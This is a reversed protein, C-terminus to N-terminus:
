RLSGGVTGPRCSHSSPDRSPSSRPTPGPARDRHRRVATGVAGPLDDPEREDPVADGRALDGRGDGQRVCVSVPRRRRPVGPRGADGAARPQRTHRPAGAARRRAAAPPQPHHPQGRRVAGEVRDRGREPRDRGSVCVAAQDASHSRAPQARGAGRGAPQRASLDHGRRRAPLQQQVRRGRGSRRGHEPVGPEHGHGGVDARLAPRDAPRVGRRGLRRRREHDAADVHGAPKAAHVATGAPVAADRGGGARPDGADPRERRGALGGTRQVAAAEDPVAADSVAGRGARGDGHGGSAGRDAVGARGDGPRVRVHLGAEVGGGGRRDRARGGHDDGPEAGLQLRLGVGRPAGGPLAVAARGHARGPVGAVRRVPEGGAPPRGLLRREAHEDARLAPGARRRAVDAGVRQRPGHLAVVRGGVHRGRLRREVAPHHLVGLAARGHARRLGAGDGAPRLPAAGPRSGPQGRDGSGEFVVPALTQDFDFRSVPRGHGETLLVSGDEGFGADLEGSAADIAYLRDRSNLFIRAEDGDRWYAIGRHKFGGPGAGRPGGEYAGPDFTWLEAGTEADLAAVRTYMTSLYLINDVMIPTAQFAGPRTGYEPLPM